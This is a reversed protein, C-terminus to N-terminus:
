IRLLLSNLSRLPEKIGNREMEQMKTPLEEDEKKKEKAVVNGRKTGVTSTGQM